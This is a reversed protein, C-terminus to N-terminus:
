SNLFREIAPRSADLASDLSRFHWPAAQPETQSFLTLIADRCLDSTVVLIPFPIPGGDGRLTEVDQFLNLLSNGWTYSMERLDLIVCLPRYAALGALVNANMFAADGNGASGHGYQGHFAAILVTTRDDLDVGSLRCTLTSLDHLNLERIQM